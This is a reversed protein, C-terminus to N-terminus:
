GNGIGLTLGFVSIGLGSAGIKLGTGLLKVEVDGDAAVMGTDVGPRMSLQVPGLNGRAESLSARSMAGFGEEGCLATASASPGALTGGVLGANGSVQGTSAYGRAAGTDRNTVAMAHASDVHGAFGIEVKAVAANGCLWRIFDTVYAQCNTEFVHYTPNNRLWERNYTEIEAATKRTKGVTTIRPAWCKHCEGGNKIIKHNKSCSSSSTGGRCDGIEYWDNGVRVGWHSYLFTVTKGLVVNREEGM